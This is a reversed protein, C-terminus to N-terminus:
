QAGGNRETIRAELRTIADRKHQQFDDREAQSILHPYPTASFVLAAPCAALWASIAANESTTCTISLGPTLECEHYMHLKDEQADDINVCDLQPLLM